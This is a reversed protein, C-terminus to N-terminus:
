NKKFNILSLFYFYFEYPLNKLIIFSDLLFYAFRSKLDFNWNLDNINRCMQSRFFIYPVHVELKGPLFFCVIKENMICIFFDM